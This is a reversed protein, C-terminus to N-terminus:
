FYVRIGGAVTRGPLPAYDRLLSTHPRADRDTLNRGDLFLEWQTGDAEGVRWAVGANVLTYGPSPAELAAVRDQKQYRVAGVNARWGGLTWNLDAGYRSPAIRPLNGGQAIDVTYNHAHDGHPVAFAVERTGSGDLEARVIDGFVRLDFDGADSELLHFKAEAEAGRFTADGQTWLRM